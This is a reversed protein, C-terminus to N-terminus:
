NITKQFQKKLTLIKLDLLDIVYSKNNFYFIKSSKKNFYDKESFLKYNEILFKIRKIKMQYIISLYFIIQMILKMMVLYSILFIFTKKLYIKSYENMKELNNLNVLQPFITKFNRIFLTKQYNLFKQYFLKKLESM